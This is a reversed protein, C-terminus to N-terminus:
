VWLHEKDKDEIVTVAWFFGQVNMDNHGLNEWEIGIVRQYVLM